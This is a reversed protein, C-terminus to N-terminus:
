WSFFCEVYEKYTTQLLYYGFYFMLTTKQTHFIYRGIIFFLHWDIKERKVVKKSMELVGVIGCRM